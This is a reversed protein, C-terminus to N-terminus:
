VWLGDIGLGRKRRENRMVAERSQVESEPSQVREEGATSERCM